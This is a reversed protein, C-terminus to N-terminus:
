SAKVTNWLAPISRESHIGLKIIEPDIQLPNGITIQGLPLSSSPTSSIKKLRVLFFCSVDSGSKNYFVKYKSIGFHGLGDWQSGSQTNQSFKSYVKV